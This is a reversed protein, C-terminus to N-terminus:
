EAPGPVEGGLGRIGNGIMERLQPDTEVAYRKELLGVNEEEGWNILCRVAARRVGPDGDNISVAITARATTDESGLEGVASVARERVDTQYPPATYPLLVAIDSRRGLHGLAWVAALRVIDRYSEIKLSRLALRGARASDVKGISYLASSVAIYSSDRDVIDELVKGADPGPFQRLAYVAASRVRGDRDNRAIRMLTPKVSDGTLTGLIGTAENRVAWFPDELAERFLLSVVATDEKWKKLESLADLRASVNHAHSLAYMVEELPREYVLEKLVRCAPDLLVMRPDGPLTLSYTSDEQSVWIVRHEKWGDGACEVDLPFRFLGTLSDREQVQRIHLHVRGEEREWSKEVELKPYGAGYVWQRFFWDLDQGAADQIALELERTEVSKFAHDRLYRQLAHWFPEDGLIAHLMNLVWAGRSYVNTPYSEKSVIPKRGQARDTARVAHGMTYMGYELVDEGHTAEEYLQEFYTAFGENLWLHTWDRCTVVDGWWQHALEHAVTPDPSFEEQARVDVLLATNMTVATTNEMGGWMFDDILIQDFKEWPYPYGIKQEFLRLMGPTRGFVLRARASDEPYMYYTVPLKGYRDSVTRYAGAALMILYSAHPKNESWHFTRTKTVPDHTESILRGNSLVTYDERVTALVESTAKSNPFDYCPFWYHNDMDEGQTWIQRHRYPHSSDPQVFYLGRKPTCTYEISVQVTDDPTCSRGLYVVLHPSRNAYALHVGGSMTVGSVNFEAADFVVSDVAAALPHFRIATTGIVEKRTEDFAVTIRYHLVDYTRDPRGNDQSGFVGQGARSITGICTLIIMWIIRQMTM